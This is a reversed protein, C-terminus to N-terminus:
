VNSLKHTELKVKFDKYNVFNGRDFWIKFTTYDVGYVEDLYRVMLDALLVLVVEVIVLIVLNIM